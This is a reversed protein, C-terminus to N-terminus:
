SRLKFKSSSRRRFRLLVFRSHPHGTVIVCGVVDVRHISVEDVVAASVNTFLTKGSSPHRLPPSHSSTAYIVCVERKRSQWIRRVHCTLNCIKVKMRSMKSLTMVILISWTLTATLTTAVVVSRTLHLIIEDAVVTLVKHPSVVITIVIVIRIICTIFVSTIAKIM